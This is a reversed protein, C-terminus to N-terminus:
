SVREMAAILGADTLTRLARGTDFSPDVEIAASAAEGVPLRLHLAFRFAFESPDIRTLSYTGRSGRVEIITEAARVIGSPRDKGALYSLIVDDVPHSARLFRIGRQLTLHTDVLAEPGIASVESWRLPPADVAISAKGLLWDLQAFAEIYPWRGTTEHKALFVPFDGGYEAICPTGPASIRVYEFAVRTILGTGVLWQTAPYKQMLTATLSAQYHRLHIRFRRNGAPGDFLSAPLAASSGSTVAKAIAAQTKALPPM